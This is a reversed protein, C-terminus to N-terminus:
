FKILTYNVLCSIKFYLTILKSVLLIGMFSNGCDLYHVYEDGGVLKELWKTM